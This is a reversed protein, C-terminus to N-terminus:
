RRMKVRGGSRRGRARRTQAIWVLLVTGSAPAGANM